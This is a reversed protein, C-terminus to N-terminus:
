RYTKGGGDARRELFCVACFCSQGLNQKQHQEEAWNVSM